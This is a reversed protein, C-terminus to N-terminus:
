EAAGYAGPHLNSTYLRLTFIAIAKAVIDAAQYAAGTTVLRKLYSRM